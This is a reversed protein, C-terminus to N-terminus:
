WLETSHAGVLGAIRGLVEDAARAPLKRGDRLRLSVVGSAAESAGIVAQYPVLRGARIRAGLSGDEPRALSARLRRERARRAFAEAQPLEARTVPLVPLQVPALWGPFAGGRTDILHAVAREASGVISRHVM